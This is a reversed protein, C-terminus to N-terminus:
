KKIKGIVQYILNNEEIFWLDLCDVHVQIAEANYGKQTGQKAILVVPKNKKTKCIPCPEKANTNMQKFIRM